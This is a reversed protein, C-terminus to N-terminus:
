LPRRRPKRAGAIMVSPQAEGFRAGTQRCRENQRVGDEPQDTNEYGALPRSGIDDHICEGGEDPGDDSREDAEAEQRLLCGAVHQGENKRNTACLINIM